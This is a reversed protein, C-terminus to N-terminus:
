IEVGNIVLIDDGGKTDPLQGEFAGTDWRTRTVGRCDTTFYASCDVGRRVCAAGPKLSLDESGATANVFQNAAAKSILNGVGGWDDATTDSSINYSIKSNAGSLSGFCVGVTNAYNNFVYWYAQDGNVLGRGTTNVVTNNAFVCPASATGALAFNAVIGNGGGSNTNIFINNCIFLGFDITTGGYGTVCRIRKGSYAVCDYFICDTLHPVPESLILRDGASYTNTPATVCFGSFKSYYNLRIAIETAGSADIVIGQGRMGGHPVMACIDIYNTISANTFGTFADITEAYGGAKAYVEVTQVGQGSLNGPIADIAAQITSYTKGDGVTYTAAM